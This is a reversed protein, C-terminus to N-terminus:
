RTRKVTVIYGTITKRVVSVTVHHAADTYTEGPLFEANGLAYNPWSRGGSNCATSDYDGPTADIPVAWGSQSNFFCPNGDGIPDRDMLVDHIIVGVGPIGRQYPKATARAEITLYHASTGGCLEGGFCVKIMKIGDGLPLANDELTIKQTGARKIVVQNAAPIWGLVDKHATIYGAGPETCYVADTTGDNASMYSACQVFQAANGSSMEDWPSDYDHYVWGSHPLGISHGFEHVYTGAEQGWPPEWTAGYSQNNYVFGGGWACCDLDNNLVFNINNYASVDVGANVALAMGDAQIADLDACVGSWGCPAYQAKTKPLTLWHTSSNLGEAGLVHGRWRLQGWSTKDYFANLTTVVNSGAPPRAPNTLAAFFSPPHPEQADGAFKLLIYLVRRTKVRLAPTVEAPEISEIQNVSLHPKGGAGNAANTLQGQVAVRKGFYTVASNQQAPSLQLQHKTGDPLTLSFRTAGGRQGPRPDGWVVSLVGEFRIAGGGSQQAHVPVSSLALFGIAGAASLGLWHTWLKSM